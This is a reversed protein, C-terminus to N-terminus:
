GIAVDLVELDNVDDGIYAVEEMSINYKKSDSRADSETGIYDVDVIYLKNNNKM